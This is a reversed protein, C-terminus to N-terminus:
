ACACVPEEESVEVGEELLGVLLIVGGGGGFCCGGDEEDAEESVM